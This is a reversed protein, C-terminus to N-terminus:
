DQSSLLPELVEWVNNALIKHGEPTPHIGDPQNLRRVAAVGDLLFPILAADYAEAQGPGRVVIPLGTAGLVAKILTQDGGLCEVLELHIMLDGHLLNGLGLPPQGLGDDPRRESGADGFTEDGDALVKAGASLLHDILAGGVSGVGQVLM